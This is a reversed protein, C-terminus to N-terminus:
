SSHESRDLVELVWTVRETSMEHIILGACGLAAMALGNALTLWRSVAPAFVAAQITEWIAFSTVAGALMSLLGIRRGLLHLQRWGAFRRRHAILAMFAMSIVTFAVGIGLGVGRTAGAGFASAAVILLFSAVIAGLNFFFTERKM